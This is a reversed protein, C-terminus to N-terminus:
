PKLRLRGDVVIWPRANPEPEKAEWSLNGIFRVNDSHTGYPFKAPLQGAIRKKSWKVAEEKGLWDLFRTHFDNFPVRAGPVHHAHEVIFQEVTERNNSQARAKNITEVIPIGIRGKVKPLEVDMLTRLFHPAEECLKVGMLERGVKQDDPIRPVYLMTIRTDGPLVPCREPGQGVQIFHLTNPIRYTDMRMQRIPIMSCVTWEKIKELAGKVDSINIEEIYALVAGALEGNFGNQDQLPRNGSVRGKTILYDFSEHLISKGSDEDGYLFLYPLHQYPHRLLSAIWALGYDAGTRINAKEAWELETLPGDLDSFCHRLIMDWHPHYAEEGPGLIAPQYRYQAADRNWQRNGPYEPQFPINALTWSRSWIDALVIETEDKPVGSRRLLGGMIDKSGSVWHGAENLGRWGASEDEVTVVHRVLKDTESYNNDAMQAKIEAKISLIRTLKGRDGLWGQPVEDGEEKKVSIFVRGDKQAKLRAEREQLQEPIAVTQGLLKVVKAADNATPFVYGGNNPAEIAGSARAATALDIAKNFQCTTWNSSDQEWSPDEAAGPSFRYVRWTGGDLPFAFCNCTGPDKGESLTKFIGKLGLAARKEPDELLNQLAKTHTQLLHYDSVWVTSFGSRSLEEIVAKHSDSLPVLRRSSALTEFPDQDGAQVGAVRVKARRRTVVDAHDRWNAPLDAATLVKSAPKLLALGQNEETMKRHLVWMNGGCADVAIAFDFGTASSMMGLISRALASHLTHNETPIDDLYVYLHVGKGGTSKRVEVYPLAEAVRKVEDLDANSIGVGVAHGTISDIDFGVWRSVKKQWDWGTM